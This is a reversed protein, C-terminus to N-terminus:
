SRSHDEDTRDGNVLKRMILADDVPDSYYKKRMGVRHFGAQEYFLHAATNAGRVEIFCVEAQRDHLQKLGQRLLTSAVGKRRWAPLVALQLLEVEPGAQRFFAYGCLGDCEAVLQVGQVFQLEGAVQRGSWPNAMCKRALHCVVQLDDELM